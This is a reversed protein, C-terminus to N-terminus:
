VHDQLADPAERLPLPRGVEHAGLDAVQPALQLLDAQAVDHARTAAPSVRQHQSSAPPPDPRLQLDESRGTLHSGAPHIGYRPKSRRLQLNLGATRM